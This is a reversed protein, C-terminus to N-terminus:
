KGAEWKRFLDIENKLSHLLGALVTIDDLWGIVPIFDPILDTLFFVYCLALAIKLLAKKSINKYSGSIFSRQMRLLVPVDAALSWLLPAFKIFRFIRIRKLM